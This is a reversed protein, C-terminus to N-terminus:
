ARGSGAAAPAPRSAAAPVAVPEPQGIGFDALRERRFQTPTLGTEAKFARNFPGLSQFGADLAITLVPVAAQAPDALAAKAEALRHHNLFANFNRWGLGQNILRRLRHEPLGLREALDGITLGPERHIREEAVLRHLAALQTPDPPVEEAPPPAAPPRPPALADTSRLLLAASALALAALGAANLLPLGPGGGPGGGALRELSLALAYLGVVGLLVLRLRRRPEVLDGRWAGLIAALALLTFGLEALTLALGLAPRPGGYALMLAAGASLAWPLAHWPRLRFGDEFVARAFLWFVVNNGASVVLVPAFWWPPAAALAPASCLAFAAVGLAFAAGLRAALGPGRALLLALLALLAITAGRLAPDLAIM